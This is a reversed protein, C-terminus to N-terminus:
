KREGGKTLEFIDIAVKVSSQSHCKQGRSCASFAFFFDLLLGSVPLWSASEFLRRRDASLSSLISILCISSVNAIAGSCNDLSARQSYVPQSFVPKDDPEPIHAADLPIKWANTLGHTITIHNNKDLSKKRLFAQTVKL